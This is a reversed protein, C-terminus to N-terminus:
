LILYDDEHQLREADWIVRERLFLETDQGVDEATGIRGPRIRVHAPTQAM